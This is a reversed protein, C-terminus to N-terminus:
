VGNHILLRAQSGVQQQCPNVDAHVADILKQFIGHRIAEESHLLARRQSATLNEILGALRIAREHDLAGGSRVPLVHNPDFNAGLLIALRIEEASLDPFQQQILAATRAVKPASFSTGRTGGPGQEDAAIDAYSSGFDSLLSLRDGRLGAVVIVQGSQRSHQPCRFSPNEMGDNGASVIWLTNAPLSGLWSECADKHVPLTAALVAIRAQSQEMVQNFDQQLLSKYSLPIAAINDAPGHILDQLVASSHKPDYASWPAYLGEFFSKLHWQGGANKLWGLLSANGYVHDNAYPGRVLRSRVHYDSLDFAGFVVVPTMSPSFDAIQDLQWRSIQPGEAIRMAESALPQATADFVWTKTSFRRSSAELQHQSSLAFSVQYRNTLILAQDKYRFDSSGRYFRSQTLDGFTFSREIWYFQNQHEFGLRHICIGHCGADIILQQEIMSAPKAEGKFWYDMLLQYAAFLESVESHHDLNPNQEYGSNNAAMLRKLEAISWAHAFEGFAQSDLADYNSLPREFGMTVHERRVEPFAYYIDLAEGRQRAIPIALQPPDQDLWAALERLRHLSIGPYIHLRLVRRTGGYRIRQLETILAERGEKILVELFRGHRSQSSLEFRPSAECSIGILQDGRGGLSFQPQLRQFQGDKSAPCICEQSRRHIMGGAKYCLYAMSDWFELSLGSLLERGVVESVEDKSAQADQCAMTSVLCLFFFSYRM